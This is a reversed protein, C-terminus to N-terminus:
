NHYKGNNNEIYNIKYSLFFLSFIDATVTLAAVTCATMIRSVVSYFIGFQQLYRMLETNKKYRYMNNMFLIYTIYVSMKFM